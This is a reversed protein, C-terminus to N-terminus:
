FDFADLRNALAVLADSPQECIQDIFSIWIANPEWIEHLWADDKADGFNGRLRRILHVLCSVRYNMSCHVLITENQHVDMWTLCAVIGELTPQMWIVPIVDYDVGADAWWGDEAAVEQTPPLLNLVATVGAAETFWKVDGESVQGCTYVMPAVKWVNPADLEPFRLPVNM